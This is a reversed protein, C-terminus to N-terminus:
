QTAIRVTDAIAAARRKRSRLPAQRAVAQDIARRVLREVAPPADPQLVAVIEIPDEPHPAAADVELEGAEIDEAVALAPLVARGAGRKALQRLADPSAAEAGIELNPLRPLLDTDFIERHVCGPRTVLWADEAAEPATVVRLDESDLLEVQLRGAAAQAGPGLHPLSGGRRRYLVALDYRGEILGRLVLDRREMAITPRETAPLAAIVEPLWRLGLTDVTGIRLRAPARATRRLGDVAGLVREAEPLLRRGEATPTAGTSTRTLLPVGLERELRRVQESVSSQVYGLRDAAASISGTEVVAVFTRLLQTEM